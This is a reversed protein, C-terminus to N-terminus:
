RKVRSLERLQELRRRLSRNTHAAAELRKVVQRVASGDRYGRERAVDVGREGGLSVRAWIKIREDTEQAILEGVRERVRAADETDSWRAEEAGGKKDILWRVRDLLLEGGLVLGRQLRDWPNRVPQGFARAITQRYQAQAERRSRAWYALWDLCLWAAPQRRLGAYDAHSSWPYRRLEPAREPPITMSQGRRRPRVPNLHVYEVLWRAYEDADILQAKFRGQFLHGHRRHRANFRATYTTQLWGMARSLNARPTGVLLHYHNPMLCYAHVRLGFQPVAEALTDLFRWRDRDDRFVDRQENGRAMVHYVAGAFEVRIPRAMGQLDVLKASLTL